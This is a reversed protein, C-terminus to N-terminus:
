LQPASEKFIPEYCYGGGTQNCVWGPPCDSDVSCDLDEDPEPKPRPNRPGPKKKKKKKKKKASDAAHRAPRHKRNGQNPQVSTVVEAETVFPSFYAESDTAPDYVSLVGDDQVIVDLSSEEGEEDLVYLIFSRGNSSTVDVDDVFIEASRQGPGSGTEWGGLVEFESGGALSELLSQEEELLDVMDFSVEVPYDTVATM